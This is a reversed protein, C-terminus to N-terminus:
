ITVVRGGDVALLTGTIYSAQESVLFLVANAVEGPLGPRGLPAAASAAGFSGAGAMAALRESQIQGPAIANIRVGKAAYANSVAKTVANVAANVSAGTAQGPSPQKASGGSINVISGSGAAAMHPLVARMTRVYGLFKTQTAQIWSEDSVSEFEGFVPSTVCNVLIDIRRQDAVIQDVVRRVDADDSVDCTVIAPEVSARLAIDAQAKELKHSDRSSIVVTAGARGLCEAIASGITGAGGVVWAVKGDIRM